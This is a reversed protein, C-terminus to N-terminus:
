NMEQILRKLESKIATIEGELLKNHNRLPNLNDRVQVARAFAQRNVEGFSAVAAAARVRRFALRMVREVLALGARSM